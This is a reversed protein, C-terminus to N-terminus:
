PGGNDASGGDTLGGLRLLEQTVVFAAAVTASDTVGSNVMSNYSKILPWAKKLVAKTARMVEKDAETLSEPDAAKAEYAAYTSNYISMMWLSKEKPSMDQFEKVREQFWACSALLLCVLAVPIPKLLSTSPKM